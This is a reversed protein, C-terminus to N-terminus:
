PKDRTMSWQRAGVRQISNEGHVWESKGM